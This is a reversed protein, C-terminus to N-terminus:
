ARVRNAAESSKKVKKKKVKKTIAPKLSPLYPSLSTETESIRRTLSQAPIVAKRRIASTTLSAMTIESMSDEEAESEANKYRMSASLSSLALKSPADLKKADDTPILLSNENLRPLANSKRLNAFDTTNLAHHKSHQLEKLQLANLSATAQEAFSRNACLLCHSVRHATCMDRGLIQDPRPIMSAHLLATPSGLPDIRPYPEPSKISAISQSSSLPAPVRARQSIPSTFVPESFFSCLVCDMLEHKACCSNRTETPQLRVPAVASSDAEVLVSRVVPTVHVVEQSDVLVVSPAISAGSALSLDLLRARLSAIEARQSECLVELRALDDHERSEAVRRPTRESSGATSLARLKSRLQKLERRAQELTVESVTEKATVSVKIKSARSAFQLSSYTEEIFRPDSHITTVLYTQGNGVLSDQLIRTLQSDRFPVHRRHSETLASVCQGLVHLSSNISATEKVCEVSDAAFSKESGALDVLTFISERIVLAGKSSTAEVRVFLQLISHSRSSESNLDSSRLARNANAKRLLQLVDSHKDVRYQSIGHVRVSSSEGPGTLKIALPQQRKGDLLLDFIKENYIQFLQCHVTYNYHDVNKSSSELRAFLDHVCRPILGLNSEDKFATGMSDCSERMSVDCEHAGTEEGMMSYTKGSSTQGYVMICCNVGDLVQDVAPSCRLYLDRQTSGVGLVDSFTFESVGKRDRSVRVTSREESVSLVDDIAGNADLPSDSPRARVMVRFTGGEESM